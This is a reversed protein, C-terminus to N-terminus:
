CNTFYKSLVLRVELIVLINHSSRWVPQPLNLLGAKVQSLTRTEEDWRGFRVKLDGLRFVRGGFRVNCAFM